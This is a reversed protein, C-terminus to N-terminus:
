ANATKVPKCELKTYGAREKLVEPYIDPYQSKLLEGDITMSPAVSSVLLDVTNSRGKFVPGTFDVLEQRISKMEKEARSKTGNLQAYKNALAEIEPPLEVKPVTM